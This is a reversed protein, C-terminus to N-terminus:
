KKNKAVSAQAIVCEHHRYKKAMARMTILSVIVQARADEHRDKVQHMMDTDAGQEEGADADDLFMGAALATEIQSHINKVLRAFLRSRQAVISGTGNQSEPTNTKVGNLAQIGLPTQPSGPFHTTFGVNDMVDMMIMDDQQQRQRSAGLEDRTRTLIERDRKMKALDQREVKTKEFCTKAELKSQHLGRCLHYHRMQSTALARAWVALSFQSQHWSEMDSRFPSDDDLLRVAM